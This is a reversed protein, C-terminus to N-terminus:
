MGVLYLNYLYFLPVLMLIEKFEKKNAVHNVVNADIRKDSIVIMDFLHKIETKWM